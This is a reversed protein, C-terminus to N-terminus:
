GVVSSLAIGVTTAALPYNSTEPRAWIRESTGALRYRWPRSITVPRTAEAWTPGVPRLALRRSRVTLIYCWASHAANTVAPALTIRLHTADLRVCSTAAVLGAPAPVSGGDMVLFGAGSAAQSPVILYTGEDHQITLVVTSTTDLWAHVIRPGQGSPLGAPVTSFADNRGTAYLARAVIPAARRAVIVEDPGDPHQNDGGSQVGTSADWTAGPSNSDATMKPAIVVNQTADAELPAIVERHM